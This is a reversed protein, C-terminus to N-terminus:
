FDHSPKDGVELDVALESTQVVCEVESPRLPLFFGDHGQRTIHGQRNNRPCLKHTGSPWRRPSYYVGDHLFIYVVRYALRCIPNAWREPVELSDVSVQVIECVLQVVFSLVVRDDGFVVWDVVVREVVGDCVDWFGGCVFLDVFVLLLVEIHRSDHRDHWRRWDWNFRNVRVFFRLLILLLAQFDRVGHRHRDWYSAVFVFLLIPFFLDGISHRM